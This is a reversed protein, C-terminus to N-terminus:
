IFVFDKHASTHVVGRNKKRTMKTATDTFRKRQKQALLKCQVM